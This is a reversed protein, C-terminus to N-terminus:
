SSWQETPQTPWVPDVVPNVAYNRIQSRYSIFAAQNVLYPNSLQPNGVDGISTWDTAQLIAVATDKCRAILQEPTPAPVPPAIFQGDVYTWGPGATDSQVAFYSPDLGPIPQVPQEEYDIVNVVDTGSIIAYRQMYIGRFFATIYIVGSGGSGGNVGTGINGGAGGSAVSYSYTASPSAIYFECYGGAGGGGAGYPQGTNAAGGAGGGGGTNPQGNTGSVANSGGQGRGEGGLASAGGNGGWAGSNPVACPGGYGGAVVLGVAGTPLSGGGGAGGNDNVTGPGGGNAAGGSGFTTNGGTSGNGAASNAATGGGGGGGVMKVYLFKANTPTTYTGSGSTYVTVQPPQVSNALTVAQTM